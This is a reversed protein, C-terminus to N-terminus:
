RAERYDLMWIDTDGKAITVNAYLSRGDRSLALEDPTLGHCEISGLLRIAGSDRALLRVEKMRGQVPHNSWVVLRRSDPLWAAGYVAPLDALKRYSNDAVDFVGVEPDPTGEDDMPMGAIWRGDPSWALPFLNRNPMIPALATLKREGAPVTLDVRYPRYSKAPVELVVFLERGDPSPIIPSAKEGSPSAVVRERGSGDSRISWVEIKGGTNLGFYIRSGDASWVLDYYEWL